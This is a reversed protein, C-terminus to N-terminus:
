SKPTVSLLLPVKGRILLIPKKREFCCKSRPYDCRKCGFMGSLDKINSYVLVDKYVIRSLIWTGIEDITKDIQVSSLAEFPFNRSLGRGDKQENNVRKM